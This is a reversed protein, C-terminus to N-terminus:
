WAPLWIPRISRPSSAQVVSVCRYPLNQLLAVDESGERAAVEVGPGGGPTRKVRGAKHLSPGDLSGRRQQRAAPAAVVADIGAPVHPDPSPRSRSPEPVDTDAM